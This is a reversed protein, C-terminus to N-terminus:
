EIILKLVDQQQYTSVKLVYAGKPLHSVDIKTSSSNAANKELSYVMRGTVDYFSLTMAELQRATEMVFQGNSPNPSINFNTKALDDNRLVPCSAADGYNDGYTDGNFSNPIDVVLISNFYSSGNILMPDTANNWLRAGDICGSPFTFYLFLEEVGLAYSIDAPASSEFFHVDFGSLEPPNYLGATEGWIGGGLVGTVTASEDAATQPLVIAVSSGDAMQVSPGAAANGTSLMWVEYRNEVENFRLNLDNIGPQSYSLNSTLLILFFSLIKKM